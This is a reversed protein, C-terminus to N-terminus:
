GWKVFGSSIIVAKKLSQSQETAARGDIDIVTLCEGYRLHWWACRSEAFVGGPRTISRWTQLARKRPPHDGQRYLLLFVEASAGVARMGGRDKRAM